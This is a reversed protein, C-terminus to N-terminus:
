VNTDVKNFTYFRLFEDGDEDKEIKLFNISYHTRAREVGKREPIENEVYSVVYVTEGDEDKFFHAKEVFDRNKFPFPFKVVAYYVQAKGITRVNKFEIM